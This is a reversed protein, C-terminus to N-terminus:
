TLVEMPLAPRLAPMRTPQETVIDVELADLVLQMDMALGVDPRTKGAFHLGVVAHTTDDLWWAGSDGRDSVRAGSTTPEIRMVGRILRTQNGYQLKTLGDVGTIIGDTVGTRRGSKTLRMGIQPRAVGTVPGLYLQSNVLARTDTLTAVAADLGQAMANGALTAVVDRARGGDLGAPQCIRRGPLTGWAVVLVHWNSLIM